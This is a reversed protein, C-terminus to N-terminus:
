SQPCSGFSMQRRVRLSADDDPEERRGYRLCAALMVLAFTLTDPRRSLAALVQVLVLSLVAVLSDLLHRLAAETDASIVDELIRLLLLLPNSLGGFGQVPVPKQDQPLLAFRPFRPQFAVAPVTDVTYVVVSPLSERATNDWDLRRQRSEALAVSVAHDRQGSTDASFALVGIAAVDARLIQLGGIARRLDRVHDHRPSIVHASTLLTGPGVLVATGSTM